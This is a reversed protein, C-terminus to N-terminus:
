VPINDPMLNDDPFLFGTDDDDKKYKRLDKDVKGKVENLQSDVSELFYRSAEPITTTTNIFHDKQSKTLNEIMRNRTLSGRRYVPGSKGTEVDYIAMRTTGYSGQPSEETAGQSITKLIAALGNPGQQHMLYNKTSSSYSRLEHDSIGYQGKFNDFQKNNIVTMNIYAHASKSLDTKADDLTFSFGANNLTKIADKGFQFSGHYNSGKRKLNKGFSSEKGYVSVLEDLSVGSNPHAEVVKKLINYDDEKLINAM